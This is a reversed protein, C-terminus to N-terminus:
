HVTLLSQSTIRRSLDFYKWKAPKPQKICHRSYRMLKRAHGACLEALRDAAFRRRSWRAIYSDSCDLETPIQAWTLILRAPQAADARGNRLHVQRQLEVRESKTLIMVGGEAVM